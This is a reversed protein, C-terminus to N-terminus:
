AGSQSRIPRRVTTAPADRSSRVLLLWSGVVVGVVVVVVSVTFLADLLIQLRADPLNRVQYTWVDQIPTDSVERFTRQLFPNYTYSITAVQGVAFWLLLGTMAALWVVLSLQYRLGHGKGRANGHASNRQETAHVDDSHSSM